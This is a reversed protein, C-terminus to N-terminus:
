LSLANLEADLVKVRAKRLADWEEVTAAAAMRVRLETLKATNSQRLAHSRTVLSDYSARSAGFDANLATFGALAASDDKAAATVM